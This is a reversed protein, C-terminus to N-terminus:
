PALRRPGARRMTETGVTGLWTGSVKGYGAVRARQRSRWGAPHHVVAAEMVSLLLRQIGPETPNMRAWQGSAFVQFDDLARAWTALIQLKPPAACGDAMCDREYGSYGCGYSQWPILATDALVSSSALRPMTRTPSIVLGDEERSRDEGHDNGM